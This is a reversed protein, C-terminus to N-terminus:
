GLEVGASRLIQEEPGETPEVSTKESREPFHSGTSPHDRRIKTDTLEVKPFNAVCVNRTSSPAQLKLGKNAYMGVHMCHASKVTSCIRTYVLCFVGFGKM